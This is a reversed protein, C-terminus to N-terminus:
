LDASRIEDILRRDVDHSRCPEGAKGTQARTSTDVYESRHSGGVGLRAGMMWSACLFTFLSGKMDSWSPWM